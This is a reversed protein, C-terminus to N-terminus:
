KQATEPTTANVPPQSVHITMEADLGPRILWYEGERQNQIEARVLYNGRLVTQSVFTVRGTVAAERDRALRARVTVPRGALDVPDFESAKVFCEVRLVDFKVLRLIPDGPNVWQAQKQRLEQVQGDFPARLTRRDLAIQAAKLEAGKVEADKAALAQDKKAKEIQLVSRELVLRKEDIQSQSVSGPFDVNADLDRKLDAKAVKAAAVAYREEVDDKARELAAEHGFRAVDLAALAQRDDITAMVDGSKVRTGERMSLQTLTGEVEASIISDDESTISAPKFTPDGTAAAGPSAPPEVGAAVQGLAALMAAILTFGM